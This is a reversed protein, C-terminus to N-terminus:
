FVLFVIINIFWRHFLKRLLLQQMKNTELLFWKKSFNRTQQCVWQKQLSGLLINPCKVVSILAVSHRKLKCINKWRQKDELLNKLGKDSCMIM